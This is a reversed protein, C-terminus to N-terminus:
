PYPDPSPMYGCGSRAHNRTPPIRPPAASTARPRPSPLAQDPRPAQAQPCRTSPQKRGPAQRIPAKGPRPQRMGGHNRGVLATQAPGMPWTRRGGTRPRAQPRDRLHRSPCQSVTRAAHAPSLSTARNGPAAQRARTRRIRKSGKSASQERIDDTPRGSSRDGASRRPCHSRSGPHDTARTEPSIRISGARRRQRVPDAHPSLAKGASRDILSGGDDAVPTMHGGMAPFVRTAPPPKMRRVPRALRRM